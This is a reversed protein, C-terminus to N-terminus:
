QPIAEIVDILKKGGALTVGAAGAGVLSKYLVSRLKARDMVAKNASDMARLEQKLAAIQQNNMLGSARLEQEAVEEFKGVMTTPKEGAMLTELTDVLKRRSEMEKQLDAYQKAAKAEAAAKTEATAKEAAKITKTKAETTETTKAQTQKKIDAVAAKVDKRIQDITAKRAKAISALGFTNGEARALSSAQNEAMNRLEPFEKLWGNALAKDIWRRVGASDLGHLSNSVHRAALQSAEQEGLITKIQRVNEVSEFDKTLDAADVKFPKKTKKMYDIDERGIARQGVTTQFKNIDDSLQKWRERPYYEEGVFKKMAAELRDALTAAKEAAVANHGVFENKNALYRLNRLEDDVVDMTVPRPKEGEVLKGSADRPVEGSLAKRLRKATAKMQVTFPTSTDDVAVKEWYELQKSFEIGPESEMFFKGQDELQGYRGQYNEWAPDKARTTVARKFAAIMRARYDRGVAGKPSDSTVDSKPLGVEESAQTSAKELAERQQELFKSIVSAKRRQEQLGIAREKDIAALRSQEDMEAEHRAAQELTDAEAHALSLEGKIAKQRASEEASIGERAASSAARGATATASRASAAKEAGTFAEKLWKAASSAAGFGPALAAATKVGFAGAKEAEETTEPRKKPIADWVSGVAKSISEGPHRAFDEIGAVQELAHPIFMAPNAGKLVDGAMGLAAKGGGVLSSGFLSLESPKEAAPAAPPAAEAAPASPAVPAAAPMHSKAYELAQERTAGEPAKIRFKRGDPSTVIYDTM